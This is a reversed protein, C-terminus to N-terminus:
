RLVGYQRERLDGYQYQRLVGDNCETDCQFQQEYSLWQCHGRYRLRLSVPGGGLVAFHAIGRLSFWDKKEYQM